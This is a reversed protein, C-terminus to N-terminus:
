WRRRSQYHSIRAARLQARRSADIAPTDAPLHRRLDIAKVRLVRPEPFSSAKHWRWFMGGRRWGASDLWNPVGPDSTAIVFRAKGDSDLSAQTGNYASSHFTFDIASYFPDLLQVSWYNVTEPMDSELILVEDADFEFLSQFYM